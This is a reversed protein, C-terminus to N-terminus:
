LLERVYGLLPESDRLDRLHQGDRWGRDPVPDFGPLQLGLGVAVPEDDGFRRDRGVTAAANKSPGWLRRSRTRRHGSSRSLQVPASVNAAPLHLSPPAM